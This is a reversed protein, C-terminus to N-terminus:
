KQMSKILNEAETLDHRQGNIPLNKVTLTLFLWRLNLHPSGTGASARGCNKCEAM